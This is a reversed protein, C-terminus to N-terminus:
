QEAERQATMRIGDAVTYGNIRRHPAAVKALEIAVELPFQHDARYSPSQLSPSEEMMWVGDRGFVDPINFGDVVSYWDVGDRHGRFEVYISFHHDGPVCTVEVRITRVTPEDTM